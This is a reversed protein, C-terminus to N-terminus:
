ALRFCSSMCTSSEQPMQFHEVDEIRTLALFVPVTMSRLDTASFFDWEDQQKPLGCISNIAFDHDVPGRCGQSNHKSGVALTFRVPVTQCNRDSECKIQIFGKCRSSKFNPQSERAIPKPYVMLRFKVNRGEPALPLELPPSVAQKDKGRAKCADMVWCVNFCCSDECQTWTMAKPRPTPATIINLVPQVFETSPVQLLSQSADSSSSASMSGLLSTEGISPGVTSAGPQKSGKTSEESERTLEVGVPLTNTCQESQLKVCGPLRNQAATLSMWSIRSQGSTGQTEMKSNRRRALILSEENDPCRPLHSCSEHILQEEQVPSSFPDHAFTSALAPLTSPRILPAIRPEDSVVSVTEFSVDNIGTESGATSTTSETDKLKHRSTHTDQPDVCALCMFRETCTGMSAHLTQSHRPRRSTVCPSQDEVDIFTNRVTILPIGSPFQTRWLRELTVDAPKAM